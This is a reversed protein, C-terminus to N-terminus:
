PSWYVHLGPEIFARVPMGLRDPLDALVVALTTLKAEGRLHLYTRTAAALVPFTLTLRPHPADLPVIAACRVGEPASMAAALGETGPFLSATHGDNGMGLVLVDIPWALSELQREAAVRGERPSLSGDYLPIWRAEAAPGQLLERKVLASNSDAHDEPVWREDALLVDIRSWNLSQERLADFFPVPTSGGSVVLLARDKFELAEELDHRIAEAMRRALSDARISERLVLGRPWSLDRLRM